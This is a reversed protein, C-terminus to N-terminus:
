RMLWLVDYVESVPFSMNTLLTKQTPKYSFLVSNSNDYYFDASEDISTSYNKEKEKPNSPGILVDINNSLVKKVVDRVLKIVETYDHAYTDTHKIYWGFIGIDITWPHAIETMQWLRTYFDEIFASKYEYLVKSPDQHSLFSVIKSTSQSIGSCVIWTCDYYWSSFKDSDDIQSITYTKKWGTLQGASKQPLYYSVNCAFLTNQVREIFWKKESEVSVRIKASKPLFWDKRCELAKNM